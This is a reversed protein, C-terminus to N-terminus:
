ILHNHSITKKSQSFDNCGAIAKRKKMFNQMFQQNLTSVKIDFRGDTVQITETSNDKNYLTCNFIGSYIGNTYDFRSIKIIGSNQGSIYTKGSVGDNTERVIIEPNNPGDAFFDNNSQGVIHDGVGITMDNIHIYIWYSKDKNKLNTIKISWYDDGIIPANFNVGAFINLGYVPFGSTSNIGNKPIIVKGNIVCGATNAGTTTIAPLQDKPTEPIGENKSCSFTFFSLLILPISNKM